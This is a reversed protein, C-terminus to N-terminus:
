SDQHLPFCVKRQRGCGAGLDRGGADVDPVLETRQSFAPVQFETDLGFLQRASISIDPLASKDTQALNQTAM